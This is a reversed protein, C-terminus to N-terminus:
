GETAESSSCNLNFYNKVINYKRPLFLLENADKYLFNVISKLQKDGSYVLSKIYPTIQHKQLKNKNVNCNDILINQIDEMFKEVGILSFRLGRKKDISFCGDADSFGLIFNNILHKPIKNNFLYNKTKGEIINHVRLADTLHKSTITLNVYNGYHFINYNSNLNYNFNELILKDRVSLNIILRRKEVSGDGVIFGLWYAQQPTIIEDFYKENISYIKHAESPTKTINYHKLIKYITKNNKHLIKAIEVGNYGDKYMECIRNEIELDTKKM